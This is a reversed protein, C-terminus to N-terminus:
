EPLHDQIFSDFANKWSKQEVHIRGRKGMNKRMVENEVLQELSAAFSDPDGARTVLGTEGDVIVEKPGGADSVVAPLGSAQAELLVTGYTDTTSPFAFIDCNCYIEALDEGEIFGTFVVDPIETLQEKLEELYPGDGVIVLAADDHEAKVIKFSEQLVDLDKERSVRGVYLIIIKDELEWGIRFEQHSREPRFFDVDTGKAFIRIKEESVGHEILKESYSESLAYVREMRGYFQRMFQWAMQEMTQDKTLRSVYSPLDTHYIGSTPINLLDAIWLGLLGVPGPSSIILRTYEQQECHHIVDLIPPIALTMSEYEPLPFHFLPKFSIFDGEFDPSDPHSTITTISVKSDRSMLNYKQIIRAAGNIDMLTDTFWGWKEPRSQMCNKLEYREGLEKLYSNDYFFHKYGMVYPVAPLVGPILLSLKAFAEPINGTQLHYLWQAFSYRYLNNFISSIFGFTEQQLDRDGRHNFLLDTNRWDVMLEKVRGKFSDLEIPSGIPAEMTPCDCDGLAQEKLFKKQAYLFLMLRFRIIKKFLFRKFASQHNSVAAGPECSSALRNIVKRTRSQPQVKSVLKVLREDFSGPKCYQDLIANIWNSQTAQSFTLATMSQGHTTSSKKRVGALFDKYNNVGDVETWCRGLFFSAHDDSGGLRGKKWPEDSWTPLGHKKQLGEMFEPSLNDLFERQMRNALDMQLGNMDEFYDFLLLVKELHQIQLKGRNCHFPHPVSILVDQERFYEAFDVINEKLKLGMRFQEESIDYACLHISAPDRHFSVTFECSVFCDPYSDALQLAGDIRNHDTITVFDMDLSKLRHYLEKVPTYSERAGLKRFLWHIPQDSYFSHCHMDIKAM